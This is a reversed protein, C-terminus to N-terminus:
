ENNGTGRLKTIILGRAGSKGNHLLSNCYPFDVDEFPISWKLGRTGSFWNEAGVSCCGQTQVIRQVFVDHM